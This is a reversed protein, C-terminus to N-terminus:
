DAGVLHWALRTKTILLLLVVGHAPIKLVEAAKHVSLGHADILFICIRELDPLCDIRSLLDLCNASTHHARRPPKCSHEIGQWLDVINSAVRIFAEEIQLSGEERALTKAYAQAVLQEALDPDRTIRCALNWVNPLVIPFAVTIDFHM